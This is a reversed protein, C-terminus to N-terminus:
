EPPNPDHEITKAAEVAEVISRFEAIQERVESVESPGILPQVFNESLWKGADAPLVGTTVDHAIQRLAELQSAVTKLDPLRYSAPIEPVYPRSAQRREIFPLRAAAATIRLDWRLDPNDRVQALFDLDSMTHGQAEVYIQLDRRAATFGRGGRPQGPHNYLHSYTPYSNGSSKAGNLRSHPSSQQKPYAM